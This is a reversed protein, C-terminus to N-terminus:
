HNKTPGNHPQVIISNKFFWHKSSWIETQCPRNESAINTESFTTRKLQQYAQTKLWQHHHPPPGCCHNHYMDESPTHISSSKKTVFIHSLINNLALQNSSHHNIIFVKVSGAVDFYWVSDSRFPWLNSRQYSLKRSPPKLHRKNEDRGPSIIWNSEYKEFPNFGGILNKYLWFFWLIYM